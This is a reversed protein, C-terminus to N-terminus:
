ETLPTFDPHASLCEFQEDDFTAACGGTVPITQGGPTVVIRSTYVTDRFFRAPGIYTPEPNTKDATAATGPFGQPLPNLGPVPLAEALSTPELERRNKSM